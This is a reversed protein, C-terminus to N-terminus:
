ELLGPSSSDPSRLSRSLPDWSTLPEFGSLEM